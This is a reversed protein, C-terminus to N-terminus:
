PVRPYTKDVYVLAEGASYALIYHNDEALYTAMLDGEKVLLVNFQYISIFDTYHLEGRYMAIMDDLIDRVGNNAKVFVEARADIFPRLGRFELYGGWNYDAYLCIQPSELEEIIYETAEKPIMPDISDKAQAMQYAFFSISIIILSYILLNRTRPKLVASDKFPPKIDRLAYALFPFGCIAFLSLSRVSSLALYGTGLTLLAYRIKTRPQKAFLYVAGVLFFVGLVVIGTIGQFDPPKMESVYASINQYGYSRFLYTMSEWGYPNVFGAAVSCLLAILLPKKPYGEGKLMKIHFPFSDIVYPLAIVFLFPWMAGHFNILLLSLLPLFLLEINKKNRVWRELLIIELLFILLSIPYPRTTMFIFLILTDAVAVMYSVLQNGHSILLCLQYVAFVTVVFLIFILLLLGTTGALNYIAAFSVATLWQQMVFHLGEHLTFPEVHPIGNELVYRGSNIIWYADNDLETRLFFCPIIMIFFMMIRERLPEKENTTHLLTSDRNM